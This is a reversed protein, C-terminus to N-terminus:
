FPAFEDRKEALARLKVIGSDIRRRALSRISYPHKKSCRMQAYASSSILSVSDYPHKMFAHLTLANIMSALRRYISEMQVITNRM